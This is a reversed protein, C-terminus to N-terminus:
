NQFVGSAKEQFFFQAKGFAPELDDLWVAKPNYRAFFPRGVWDPNRGQIFRLSFVREGQIDATGLVQVKGPNASMVPGRVTRGLGSQQQYAKRFIQHARELSVAFYDQAGTDRAVFMYYPVIGMRTQMRWMRKWADVSDNIHRMIPSQTRIQAGTNRIRRVAEQVAPTELERPHNFHAMFALHYGKQVVREFLRLMDDADKDTTFKYPWYSLSKTGIRISQLSPLNGKLLPEVYATFNKASMIMPDGGTFLVDTVQPHRRLYEVLLETERMAFKLEDIGVFQPWRFCFTCYAHCTQSNSPFFLVTERYKHQLGTLKQGDLMPVNHAQGSPHPNLQYRIKNAVIKLEAKSLGQALAQEMEEFHAESLMGPQPFTLQFIPDEPINGWDILEEVVYTNVKFPRVHGVVDIAQEERKSLAQKLQPIERYNRLAYAKYKM